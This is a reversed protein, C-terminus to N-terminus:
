RLLSCVYRVSECTFLLDITVVDEM